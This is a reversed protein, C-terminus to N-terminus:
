LPCPEPARGDLRGFAVGSEVTGVEVAKELKTKNHEKAGAERDLDILTALLYPSTTKDPHLEGDNLIESCFAHVKTKLNNSENKDCHDLLRHLFLFILTRCNVM